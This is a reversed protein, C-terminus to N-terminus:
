ACAEHQPSSAAPGSDIKWEGSSRVMPFVVNWHICPAQLEPPADAEDQVSTFTMLVRATESDEALQIRYIVIRGDKTSRYDRRWTEEPKEEVRPETVTSAWSEYDLQNIADFHTQLVERLPEYLPHVTADATGQVVDSGPQEELPVTLDTPVVPDPSDPGPDEYWQRALLGGIATAIVTVLLVPVLWLQRGRDPSVRSPHWLPM